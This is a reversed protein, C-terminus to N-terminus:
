LHDQLCWSFFDRECWTVCLGLFQKQKYVLLISCCMEGGSGFLINMFEIVIPCLTLTFDYSNHVLLNIHIWECADRNEPCGTVKGRSGPQTQLSGGTDEQQGKYFLFGQEEEENWNHM